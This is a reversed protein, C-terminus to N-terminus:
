THKELLLRCVLYSRTAKPPAGGRSHGAAVLQPIPVPPLIKPHQPRLTDILLLPGRAPVVRSAPRQHRIANRAARAPGRSSHRAASDPPPEIFSCVLEKCSALM